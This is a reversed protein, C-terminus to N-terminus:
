GHSVEAAKYDISAGLVRADRVAVTVTANEWGDRARLQARMANAVVPVLDRVRGADRATALLVDEDGRGAHSSAGYVVDVDIVVRTRLTVTKPIFDTV